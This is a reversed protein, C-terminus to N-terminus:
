AIESTALYIRLTVVEASHRVKDLSISAGSKHRKICSVQVPQLDAMQISCSNRTRNASEVAYLSLKVDFFYFFLDSKLNHIMYAVAITPKM